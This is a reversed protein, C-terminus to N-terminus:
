RFLAHLQRLRYSGQCCGYPRLLSALTTVEALIDFIFISEKKNFFPIGLLTKDDMQLRIMIPNQPSRHIKEFLRIFPCEVGNDM